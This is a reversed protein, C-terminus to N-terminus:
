EDTVRKKIEEDLDKTSESEGSKDVTDSLFEAEKKISEKIGDIAAKVEDNKAKKEEDAKGLPSIDNMYSPAMQVLLEAGYSVYPRTRSSELWEPMDKESVVLTLIVYGLSLLAGARILGFVIGLCNDLMGIDRGKRLFKMLFMNLVSLGILALMFTGTAALGGAIVETSIYAKVFKLTQPFTYLTVVMAGIWTGLSLLERVFGRVFSLLVSLGLVSFVGLDLWNFSTEVM